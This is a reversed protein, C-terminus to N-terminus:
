STLHNLCIMLSQGVSIVCGINSAYLPEYVIFGIIVIKYLMKSHVFDM